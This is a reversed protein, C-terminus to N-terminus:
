RTLTDLRMAAAVPTRSTWTSSTGNHDYRYRVPRDDQRAFTLSAGNPLAITTREGHQCETWADVLVSGVGVTSAREAAKRAEAARQRQAHQAASLRDTASKRSVLAVRTTTRHALSVREPTRGKVDHYTVLHGHSDMTGARRGEPAFRRIPRKLPVLSAEGHSDVAWVSNIADPDTRRLGPLRIRMRPARVKVAAPPAGLRADPVADALTWGLGPSHTPRYKHDSRSSSGVIVRAMDSEYRGGGIGVRHRALLRSHDPDGSADTIAEWSRGQVTGVLAPFDVEPAHLAIWADAAAALTIGDMTVLDTCDDERFPDPGTIQPVAGFRTVKSTPKGASSRGRRVDHKTAEHASPVASTVAVPTQDRKIWAHYSRLPAREGHAMEGLMAWDRLADCETRVVKRAEDYDDETLYETGRMREDM